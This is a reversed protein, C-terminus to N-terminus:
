PRPKRSPPAHAPTRTAMPRGRPPRAGSGPRPAPRQRDPPEARGTRDAPMAPPAVPDQMMQRVPEGHPQAVGVAAVPEHAPARPPFKHVPESRHPHRGPHQRYAFTFRERRMEPADLRGPHLAIPRPRIRPRRKTTLCLPPKGGALGRGLHDRLKAQRVSIARRHDRRNPRHAPPEGLRAPQRARHAVAAVSLRRGPLPRLRM